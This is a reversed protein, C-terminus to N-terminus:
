EPIHCYRPIYPFVLFEFVSRPLDHVIIPLDYALIVLIIIGVTKIAFSPHFLRLAKMFGKQPVM